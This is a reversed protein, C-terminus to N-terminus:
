LLKMMTIKQNSYYHNDPVNRNVITGAGIFANMGITVNPLIICHAGIKANKKILIPGNVNNESNESYLSCHSGIQVYDELTIGWRAQLFTFMGIDVFKGM